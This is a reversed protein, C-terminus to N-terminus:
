AMLRTLFDGCGQAILMLGSGISKATHAASDPRFAIFFILFGLGLWAFVKKVFVPMKGGNPRDATENPGHLESSLIM